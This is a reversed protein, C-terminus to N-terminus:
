DNLEATAAIEDEPETNNIKAAFFDAFIKAYYMLTFFALITIAQVALNSNPIAGLTNTEIHSNRDSIQKFIIALLLPVHTILGYIGLGIFLVFLLESKDLAFNIDSELNAKKAIWQAFHKSEKICYIAALLYTASVMINVLLTQLYYGGSAGESFWYYLIYLFQPLSVIFFYGSFIGVIIITLQVLDLRKM